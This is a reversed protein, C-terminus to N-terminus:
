LNTIDCNTVTASTSITSAVDAEIEGEADILGEAEAENDM